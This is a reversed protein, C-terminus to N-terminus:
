GLSLGSRDLAPGSSSAVAAQDFPVTASNSSM